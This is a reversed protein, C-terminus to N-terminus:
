TAILGDFLEDVQTGTRGTQETWHWADPCGRDLRGLLAFSIISVKAKEQKVKKKKRTMYNKIGHFLDFIVHSQLSYHLGLGLGIFPSFHSNLNRVIHNYDTILVKYPDHHVFLFIYKM